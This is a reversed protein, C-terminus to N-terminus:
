CWLLTVTVPHLCFLLRDSSEIWEAKEDAWLIMVPILVFVCVSVCVSCECYLNKKLCFSWTHTIVSRYFHAIYLFISFYFLSNLFTRYVHKKLPHCAVQASWCYLLSPQRLRSLRPLPLSPPQPLTVKCRRGRGERVENIEKKRRREREEWTRTEKRWTSREGKM